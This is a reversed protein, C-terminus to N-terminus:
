KNRAENTLFNYKVKFYIAAMKNKGKFFGLTAGPQNRSLIDGLVLILWLVDDMGRFVSSSCFTM